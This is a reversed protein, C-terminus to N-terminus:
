EDEFKETKAIIIGIIGAFWIVFFIFALVMFFARRLKFQSLKIERNMANMAGNNVSVNLINQYNKVSGGKMALSGTGGIGGVILLIIATSENM